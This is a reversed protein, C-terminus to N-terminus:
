FAQLLSVLRKGIRAKRSVTQTLALYYLGAKIIQM